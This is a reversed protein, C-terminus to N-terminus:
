YEFNFQSLNWSPYQVTWVMPAPLTGAYTEYLHMHRKGTPTIVYTMTTNTSNLFACSQPGIGADETVTGECGSYNGRNANYRTNNTNGSKLADVSGATHSIKWAQADVPILSVLLFSLMVLAIKNKM